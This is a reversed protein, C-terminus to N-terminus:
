KEATYPQGHIPRGVRERYWVVVPLDSLQQKAGM